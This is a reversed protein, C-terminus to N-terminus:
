PLMARNFLVDDLFKEGLAALIQRPEIHFDDFELFTGVVFVQQRADEARNVGDLAGAAEDPQRNQGGDCMRGFVDGSLHAFSRDACVRSYKM